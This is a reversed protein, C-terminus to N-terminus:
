AGEKANGTTKTDLFRQLETAQILVHRFARSAKLDGRDIARRLTMVSIGLLAAAESLKFAL